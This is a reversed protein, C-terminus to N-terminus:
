ARKMERLNHIRKAAPPHSYHFAAYWPHPHLNSLNDKSLKVLASALSEPDGTLESAFRDAEEEHRRSIYSSVATFPFAIIGGIFGLIIVRAYFSGSSPTFIDSLFDIQLVRFSVYLGVLAIVEMAAIRKLIHKKKWHGIEHSLVAIIEKETIKELLTDFLVIRKVRGIGTFYANTHRSRKSADIKLVREVRIDARSMVDRIHETLSADELPTLKNFLPEIVYPSIYMMFLSFVLFFSWVYFWWFSPSTQIIWLGAATIAATLITSLVLSKLLDSIWLGSSMTNFGYKKEIVFTGYLGFPISILTGAYQLLLFFVAGAAIFHLKLSDVWGSYSDLLGCYLFVLMLLSGFVSEILNLRTSKATYSTAKAITDTDMLGEFGAPIESKHKNMHRLNLFDLWYSFGQVILYSFLILLRYQHLEAM